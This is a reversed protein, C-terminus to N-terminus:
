SISVQRLVFLPTPDAKSRAFSLRPARLPVGGARQDSQADFKREAQRPDFGPQPAGQAQAPRAAIAGVTVLGAGLVTALAGVLVMRRASRSAGPTGARVRSGRFHGSIRTRAGALM